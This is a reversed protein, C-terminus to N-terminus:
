RSGYTGQQLREEMARLYEQQIPQYDLYRVRMAAEFRATSEDDNIVLRRGCRLVEHIFPLSAATTLVHVDVDPHNLLAALTSGLSIKADLQDRPIQDPKYLIAIDVDSTPLVADQAYSGFLYVAAIDSRTRFYNGLVEEVHKPKKQTM